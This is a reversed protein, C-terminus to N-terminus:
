DGGVKVDGYRAVELSSRTKEDIQGWWWVRGWQGVLGSRAAAHGKRIGVVTSGSLGWSRPRGM